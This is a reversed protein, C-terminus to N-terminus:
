PADVLLRVSIARGAFLITHSALLVRDALWIPRQRTLQVLM